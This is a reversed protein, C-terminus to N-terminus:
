DRAGGHGGGGHGGGHGGGGEGGEEGGADAGAEGSPGHRGGDIGQDALQDGINSRDEDSLSAVDIDGLTVTEGTTPDTVEVESLDAPVPGHGRPNIGQDALQDGIDARQDETLADFDIESIAVNLGTTPDVVEVEDAFAHSISAATILAALIMPSYPFSFTRM